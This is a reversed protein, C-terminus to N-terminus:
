IISKKSWDCMIVLKLDSDLIVGIYDRIVSSEEPNPIISVTYNGSEWIGLIPNLRYNNEIFEEKYSSESIEIKEENFEKVNSNLIYTHGDRFFKLYQELVAKCDGLSSTQGAKARMIDKHAKYLGRNEDTVKYIFLSYNEEYAEVTAKYVDSCKCDQATIGNISGILLRSTLISKLITKM